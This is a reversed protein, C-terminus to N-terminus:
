PDIGQGGMCSAPRAQQQHRVAGSRIVKRRITMGNLRKTPAHHEVFASKGFRVRVMLSAPWAGSSDFIRWGRESKSHVPGGTSRMRLQMPCAFRVLLQGCQPRAIFNASSGSALMGQPGCHMPQSFDSGNFDSSTVPQNFPSSPRGLRVMMRGFYTRGRAVGQGHQRM